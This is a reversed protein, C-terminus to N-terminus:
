PDPQLLLTPVVARAGLWKSSRFGGRVKETKKKKKLATAKDGAVLGGEVRHQPGYKFCFTRKRGCLSDQPLLLRELDELRRREVVDWCTPCDRIGRETHTHTHTNPHSEVILTCFFFVDGMKRRQLEEM